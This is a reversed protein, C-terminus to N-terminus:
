MCKSANIYDTLFKMCRLDDAFQCINGHEMLDSIDIMTSDTDFQESLVFKRFNDMTKSNIDNKELHLYLLDMWTERFENDDDIEEVMEENVDFETKITFKSNNNSGFREFRETDVNTRQLSKRMNAFDSDYYEDGMQEENNDKDTDPMNRMVRLGSDFIHFIYFHASDLIQQYLTLTPEQQSQLRNDSSHRDVEHHRSTFICDRLQRKNFGKDNVWENYIDEIQHNHTNVLHIYDNLMNKYVNNIFKELLKVHQKDNVIELDQYYKMAVSLRTIAQCDQYSDSGRKCTFNEHHKFISKSPLTPNKSSKNGM